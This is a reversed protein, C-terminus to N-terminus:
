RRNTSFFTFYQYLGRPKAAALEMNGRAVRDEASAINADINDIVEGQEAM